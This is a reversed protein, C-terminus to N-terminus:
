RVVELLAGEGGFAKPLNEKPIQKLLMEKHRGRVIEIKAATVEDLWPRIIAWSANIVYFKGTTEPYRDQGISSVAFVYDKNLV